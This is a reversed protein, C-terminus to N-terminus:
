QLLGPLPVHVFETSKNVQFIRKVSYISGFEPLHHDHTPNHCYAHMNKSCICLKKIQMHM